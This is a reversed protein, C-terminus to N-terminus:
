TKRDPNAFLRDIRANVSGATNVPYLQDIRTFVPLSKKLDLTTRHPEATLHTVPDTNM